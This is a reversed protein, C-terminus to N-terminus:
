RGNELLVKRLGERLMKRRVRELLKCVVFGGVGTFGTHTWTFRTGTGEPELEYTVLTVEDGEDGQWSYRLLRPAHSALVECAVVGNWGPMPKAVFRFKTGVRTSFGEPTGGKGTSTWSPIIAPDTLAKWVAERSSAYHETIRFESM